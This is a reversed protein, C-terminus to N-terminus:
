PLAAPHSVGLDQHSGDQHGGDQHHPSRVPRLAELANDLGAMARYDGEDAAIRM